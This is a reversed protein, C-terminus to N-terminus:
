INRYNNLTKKIKTLKSGIHKKVRFHLDYKEKIVKLRIEVDGIESVLEQLQDKTPKTVQQTTVTALENLAETLKLWNYYDENKSIISTIIKKKDKKKM